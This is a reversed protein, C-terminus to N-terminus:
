NLEGRILKQQLFPIVKNVASCSQGYLWRDVSGGILPYLLIYERISITTITKNGDINMYPNKYGKQTLYLALNGNIPIVNEVWCGLSECFRDTLVFLPIDM